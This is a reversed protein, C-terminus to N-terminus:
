VNVIKKFYLIFFKFLGPIVERRYKSFPKFFTFTNFVLKNDDQKLMYRVDKSFEIGGM